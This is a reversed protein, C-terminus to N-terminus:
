DYKIGFKKFIIEMAEIYKVGKEENFNNILSKYRPIIYLDLSLLTPFEHQEATEKYKSYLNWYKICKERM